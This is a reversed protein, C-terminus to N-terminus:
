AQANKARHVLRAAARQEDTQDPGGNGTATLEVEAAGVRFVLVDAYFDYDVENQRAPVDFRVHISGGPTTLPLKSPTNSASGFGLGLGGNTTQITRRLAAAQCSMGHASGLLALDRAAAHADPFVTVTSSLVPAGLEGGVLLVFDPSDAQLLYRSPVPRKLCRSFGAVSRRDAATSTPAPAAAFRPLDSGRLNVARAYASARTKAAADPATPTSVVRPAYNRACAVLGLAAATQNSATGATGNSALALAATYTEDRRAATLAVRLETVQSQTDVIFAAFREADEAPPALRNLEGVLRSVIAVESGIQGVTLGEPLKEVDRGAASCAAEALAAFRAPAASTPKVQPPAGGVARGTRSGKFAVLGATTPVVLYGGGAALGSQTYDITPSITTGLSGRWAVKGTNPALAWVHGATSAAFVHGDAVLPITAITSGDGRFTWRRAQTSPSFATVTDHEAHFALGYGFAPTYGCFHGVLSGTQPDFIRGTPQSRDDCDASATEAWVRHGDFAEDPDGGGDCGGYYNWREIGTAPYFGDSDGCAGTGVLTDGALVTQPGTETNMSGLWALAGHSEELAAISTGVGFYADYILDGDPTPIGSFAQNSPVAARWIVGGSAEDLAEVDGGTVVLRGRDTALYPEPDGAPVDHRWLVLGTRLSLAVVTQTNVVAPNEAVAFVRSGDIVVYKNIQTPGQVPAFDSSWARSLPPAVGAGSVFGDHSADGQFTQSQAAVTAFAAPVGLLVPVCTVCCLGAALIWGRSRTRSRMLEAV